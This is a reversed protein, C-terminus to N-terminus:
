PFVRSLLKRARDESVQTPYEAMIRPHDLLWRMSGAPSRLTGARYRRLVECWCSLFDLRVQEADCLLGGDVAARFV